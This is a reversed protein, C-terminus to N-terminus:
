TASEDEKFSILVAHRKSGISAIQLKIYLPVGRYRVKYVDQWLGPIKEAVMTKYFCSPKLEHRIVDAIDDPGFGVDYAGRSAKKTVFRLDSAFLEVFEALHYTAKDQTM